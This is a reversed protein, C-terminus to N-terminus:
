DPALYNSTNAHIQTQIFVGGWSSFLPSQSPLPHTPHLETGDAVAGGETHLSLTLWSCNVGKEAGARGNICGFNGRCQKRVM